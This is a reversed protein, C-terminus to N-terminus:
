LDVSPNSDSFSIHALLLAGRYFSVTAKVGDPLRLDVVREYFINDNEEGNVYVICRLTGRYVTIYNGNVEVTAFRSFALDLLLLVPAMVAGWVGIVVGFVYSDNYTVTEYTFIGSGHVTVERSQERLTYCTIGLAAFIIIFLGIIVRRIILKKRLKGELIETKEKNM